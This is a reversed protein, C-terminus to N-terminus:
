DFLEGSCSLKSGTSKNMEQIAALAMSPIFGFTMAAATTLGKQIAEIQNIDVEPNKLTGSISLYKLLSLPTIGIPSSKQVRTDLLIKENHFDIIGTGILMGHGTDLLIGDNAVLYGDAIYLSGSLCPILLDSTNTTAPSSNVTERKTSVVIEDDNSRRYKQKSRSNKRGGLTSLFPLGSVFLAHDLYDNILISNSAFEMHGNSNAFMQAISSGEFTLNAILDLSGSGFLDTDNQKFGITNIL